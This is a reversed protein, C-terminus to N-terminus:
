FYTINWALLGVWVFPIFLLDKLSSRPCWLSRLRIQEITPLAMIYIGLSVKLKKGDRASCVVGWRWVLRYRPFVVLFIFGSPESLSSCHPPYRCKQGEGTSAANNKWPRAPGRPIDLPFPVWARNPCGDKNSSTGALSAVCDAIARAKPKIWKHLFLLEKIIPSRYYSPCPRCIMYRSSLFCQIPPHSTGWMQFRLWHQLFNWISVNEYASCRQEPHFSHLSRIGACLDLIPIMMYVVGGSTCGAKRLIGRLTRKGTFVM